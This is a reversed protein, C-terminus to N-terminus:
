PGEVKWSLNTEFVMLYISACSKTRHIIHRTKVVYSQNFLSFAVSENKVIFCSCLGRKVRVRDPYLLVHLLIYYESGVGFARRRPLNGAAHKNTREVVGHETMDM